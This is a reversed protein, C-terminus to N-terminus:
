LSLSLAALYKLFSWVWVESKPAFVLAFIMTLCSRVITGESDSLFFYNDTMSLVSLTAPCRANAQRIKAGEDVMGNRPYLGRGPKAYLSWSLAM